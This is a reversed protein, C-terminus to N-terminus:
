DRAAAQPCAAAARLWMRALEPKDLKVCVEALRRRVAVDTPQRIAEQNLDSLEQFLRRSQDLRRRQEDADTRRGLREYALALQYRCPCDHPDDQLAEELVGAAAAFDGAAVYLLARVRRGRPSPRGLAAARDLARVAGAPDQLGYLCDARLELLSVTPAGGESLYGDLYKLAETHENQRILVDALEPVMQRRVQPSLHLGLAARYHEAAPGNAEMDKYIVGMFRHPQGDGGDLEVWKELQALANSMAGRDYYIAALGRRADINEPRASAVYLLLPEAEVPRGRDLFKLGFSLSAEVLVDTQDHNIQNYERIAANLENNSLHMQGRLLHARDPDGASELAAAWREAERLDGQLIAAQGQRLRYEPRTVRYRWYGVAPGVLVAVLAILVTFRTSKAM